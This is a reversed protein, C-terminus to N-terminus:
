QVKFDITLSGCQQDVEGKSFKYKLATNRAIQILYADSTTSGKQTFDAQIVKGEANVCIQLAVRGTKQSNDTFDPAYLIGRGSLGGGIKGTGKSIGELAGKDASGSPEGQNGSNNGSGKGKGFLDSFKKKQNEASEREAKKLEEQRKEEAQRRAEANESESTKRTRNDSTTPNTKSVTVKKDQAKVPAEVDTAESYINKSVEPSPNEVAKPTAPEIVSEYDDNQGALPDGFAILIGEDTQDKPFTHLFPIFFLILLVIHIILSIIWSKKRDNNVGIHQSNLDM